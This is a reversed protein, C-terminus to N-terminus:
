PPSNTQQFSSASSGLNVALQSHEVLSGAVAEALKQRYAPDGVLRAERPNSLYGGEVLIAPRNQGRLVGLYRARRVGRDRNGNVRLLARQVSCALQLNQADFANNPFGTTPDDGFGRTVSSPLGAPTLCYTEVGAQEHDPASSNFHLSLFLDAKHAEAFAIRDPLSLTTDGTRTLLVECGHAALLPKLRRAWDLTFEKEWRDALVSRTGADDGGHGPDLVIIPHRELFTPATLSLLPQLTKKLDLTHICLQGDMFQPAFGFWVEMGNWHGLRSGARLVFVGGTATVAFAPPPAAPLRDPGSVGNTKCWRVLPVWTEALSNFRGSENTRLPTQSPETLRAPKSLQPARASNIEQSEWAPLRARTHSVDTSCGTLLITVLCAFATGFYLVCM